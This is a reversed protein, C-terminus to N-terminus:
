PRTKLPARVSVGTPTPAPATVRMPKPTAKRKNGTMPHAHVPRKQDKATWLGTRFTGHVGVLISVVLAFLVSVWADMIAPYGFLVLPVQHVVVLSVLPLVLWRATQWSRRMLRSFAEEVVLLAGVLALLTLLM